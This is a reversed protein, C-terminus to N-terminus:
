KRARRPKHKPPRRARGGIVEDHVHAYSYVRASGAVFASGSVTAHDCVLADGCIQAEGCVQVADCVWAHEFVRAKGTISVNGRVHAYGYVLADPGVFVSEAVYATNAVWGGGNRHRHAPVGGLVGVAEDGVRIRGGGPPFSFYTDSYLRHDPEAAVEVVSRRLSM